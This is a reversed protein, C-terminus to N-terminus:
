GFDNTIGIYSLHLGNQLCFKKIREMYEDDTSGFHTYHLDVGDLQLDAAKQLFGFMHIEDAIFTDRYSLSQLGLKIM